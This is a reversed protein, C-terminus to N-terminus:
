DEDLQIVIFELWGASPMNLSVAYKGPTKDLANEFTEFENEAGFHQFIEESSMDQMPIVGNEDEIAIDFGWCMLFQEVSEYIWVNKTKVIM